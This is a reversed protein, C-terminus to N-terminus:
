AKKLCSMKLEQNAQENEEFTLEKGLPNWATIFLGGAPFHSCSLHLKPHHKILISYPIM